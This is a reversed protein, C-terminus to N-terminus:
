RAMELLAEIRNRISSSFSDCLYPVEIEVAPIRLETQIMNQIIKGELACHSAGPIRSIIAARAGFERIDNIIRRGRELASGAMPDALAIRALAELPAIDEPIEYLAHCFLYDTGCVRGGCEELINMMRLDAVPNVWFIRLANPDLVSEGNELRNECLSILDRLILRTEERDSCYHIAFMEAIQMELSPLPCIESAYALKRLHRFLRRIENAKKISGSLIEDDLKEGALNEIKEKIRELEMKVLDVQSAPCSFIGPLDIKEEREQPPRRAPMEWWAIPFKLSELRQAIASFDDCVAGVSCTLLDPVAFHKKNIFAGLMARVPCFSDDIGLSDAIKLLGAGEQMICPIWWAGDPYFAVLNQLAYVMIPITGLDKMTGVIKNGQKRAAHLREDETLLFNWLRLAEPSPDFMLHQLRLDGEEVHRDLPGGYWPERLGDNKLRRYRDGWEALSIKETQKIM